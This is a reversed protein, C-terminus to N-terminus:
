PVGPLQLLWGWLPVDVVVVMLPRLAVVVYWTGRVVYWTCTRARFTSPSLPQDALPLPVVASSVVAGAAGAAGFTVPVEVLLTLTVQLAGAPAVPM